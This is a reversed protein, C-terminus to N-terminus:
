SIAARSPQRSAVTRLRTLRPSAAMRGSTAATLASSSCVHALELVVDAPHHGSVIALRRTGRIQEAGQFLRGRGPAVQAPVYREHDRGGDGGHHRTAYPGTPEQTAVPLCRGGSSGDRHLAHQGTRRSVGMLRGPHRGCAPM